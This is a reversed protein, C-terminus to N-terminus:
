NINLSANSLDGRMSNIMRTTIYRSVQVPNTFDIKDKMRFPNQGGNAVQAVYGTPEPLGALKYGQTASNAVNAAGFYTTLGSVLDAQSLKGDKMAQIGSSVLQEPDSATHGIGVLPLLATQYFPTKAIAPALVTMASIDPAQYINAKGTGVYNRNGNMANAQDTLTNGLSGKINDYTPKKQAATLAPNAGLKQVATNLNDMLFSQTRAAGAPLTGRNAALLIATQNPDSAIQLVGTQAAVAGTQYAAAYFAKGNPDNAIIRKLSVANVPPLNQAKLGVNVKSVYDNLDDISANKADMQERFQEAHRAAEDKALQLNQQSISLSQDSNAANHAQITASLTKDDATQLVNLTDIQYGIGQQRLQDAQVKAALSIKDSQAAISQQSVVKASALNAAANASVASAIDQSASLATNAKDALTNQISIDKGITFKDQIAQIPNDFISSQRKQLIVDSAQQAATYNNWFDQSLQAIKDEPALADQYRTTRDQADLLGQSKTTAITNDDAGIAETDAAQQNSSAQQNGRLGAIQSAIDSTNGNYASVADAVNISGAM